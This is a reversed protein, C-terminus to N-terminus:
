FRVVVGFYLGALAGDWEFQDDDDSLRLLTQRYGVQLGAQDIPRWVFGAMIDWTFSEVDTPWYGFTTQLDLTFRHDTNVWDSYFEIGGKFGVLPAIVTKDAEARTAGQEVQLDFDIVRAGVVLDMWFDSPWAKESGRINEEKAFRYRGELEFQVYQLSTSAPTNAAFSADGLTIPASPVWGREEAGFAIFRATGGWRGKNINLEFGPTIRPSDMNVDALNIQTSAGAGARPFQFDGGPAVYWAHPEFRIIFREQPPNVDSGPDSAQARAASTGCAIAGCAALPAFRAWRRGRTRSM